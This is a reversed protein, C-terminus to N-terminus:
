LQLRVYAIDSILAMKEKHKMATRLRKLYERVFVPMDQKENETTELKYIGEYYNPFYEAVKKDMNKTLAINQKRLVCLFDPAYNVEEREKESDLLRDIHEILAQASETSMKRLDIRNAIFRFM